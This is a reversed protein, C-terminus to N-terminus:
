KKILLLFINFFAYLARLYVYIVLGAWFYFFGVFESSELVWIECSCQMM